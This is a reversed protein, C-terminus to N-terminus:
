KIGLPHKRPVGPRRPYKLPVPAKKRVLVLQRRAELFPVKVQKLEEIEGGLVFAARGGKDKEKLEVEGKQAVFYGGIKVLPLGYEMLVPLEAVARALAVDFRERFAPKRGVEEIRGWIAKTEELGLLKIVEAMFKVKKRTSDVLVLSISPSTVKLPLGPFGAGSGLDIVMSGRKIVGSEFCSLSDLFHRVVIEEDSAPGILNIKQNWEKVQGLYIEFKRLQGKSLVLGLQSAGRVLLNRVALRM